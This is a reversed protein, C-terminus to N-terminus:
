RKSYAFEERRNQGNQVGEIAALISTDSIRKYIIRQPFDHHLNEFVILSDSFTKESFSIEKGENQNSVTPAYILQDKDYTLRISESYETDGDPSIMYSIGQWQSASDSLRQWQEWMSGVETQTEWTGLLWSMQSLKNSDQKEKKGHVVPQCSSLLVMLFFVPTFTKM